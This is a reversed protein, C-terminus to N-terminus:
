GLDAFCMGRETLVHHCNVGKWVPHGGFNLAHGSTQGVNFRSDLQARPSRTRYSRVGEVGRDASGHFPRLRLVAAASRQRGFPRLSRQTPTYSNRKITRATMPPRGSDSCDSLRSPRRGPRTTICFGRGSLALATRHGTSPRRSGFIVGSIPSILRRRIRRVPRSRRRNHPM